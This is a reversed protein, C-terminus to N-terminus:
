ARYARVDAASADLPEPWIKTLALEVGEVGHANLLPAAEDDAGVPWAINSIALRMPTAGEPLARVRGVRHARADQSLHLRGNRRVPNREANASRLPASQRTFSQEM